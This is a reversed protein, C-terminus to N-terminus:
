IVRMIYNSVITPQVNPHANGNGANVNNISIGTSALSVTLGSTSNGGASFGVSGGHSSDILIANASGPNTAHTHGPDTLTNAHSHSALQATTLTHSELGGVNGLSTPPQGSNAGFYSTTLRSAASGGMNDLAAVVRGRLDPLNFTTSGDGSGYTAGIIAYLSAYATRSIAQGAPFAFASNPTTSGWYDMGAALPVNYPNSGYFGHLYFAADANNYLALYPTGQVLTGALLETSPAVRLPKAGLGDVNLTVTANSTTHPTFAIIQGNLHALSDFVQYSTVTYATSTGGTVIAGAIDDRYKAASAMMARASDNVSSPAQGEQWNISADATANSAATQSWRYLTM